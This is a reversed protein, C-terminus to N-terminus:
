RPNLNDSCVPNGTGIEPLSSTISKFSCLARDRCGTITAPGDVAKLGVFVVSESDESTYLYCLYISLYM